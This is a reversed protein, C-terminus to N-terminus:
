DISNKAFKRSGIILFVVSIVIGVIWHRYDFQAEVDMFSMLNETLLTSPAYQYLESLGVISKPIIRLLDSSFSYTLFLLLIIYIDGVKLMKLTHIMFFGSLVIPLMNFSAIIFNSISREENAFLGEGLGIVLVLGIMCIMLFYSLTLVLKSWFITSRSVGFSVSQKMISSDKGTLAINFLFAIILILITSSIVNSYLFLSSAYPFNPDFKDTVYLVFAAATILLFCIVSTIYLNKKRLIRYHESKLYNIM